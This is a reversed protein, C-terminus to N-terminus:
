YLNGNESVGKKITVNFRRNIEDDVLRRLAELPMGGTRQESREAVRGVLLAKLQDDPLADLSKELSATTEAYDTLWALHANRAEASPFWLTTGIGRPHACTRDEVGGNLSIVHGAEAAGVRRAGIEMAIMKLGEEKPKPKKPL